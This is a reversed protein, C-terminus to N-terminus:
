SGSDVMKLMIIEIWECWRMDVYCKDVVPILFLVNPKYWGFDFALVFSLIYTGYLSHQCNNLSVYQGQHSAYLATLLVGLQPLLSFIARLDLEWPDLRSLGWGWLVKFGV